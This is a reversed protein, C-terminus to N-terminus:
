ELFLCLFPESLLPKISLPPVMTGIALVECGGNLPPGTDIPTAAGVKGFIKGLAFGM